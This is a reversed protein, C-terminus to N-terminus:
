IKKLNSGRIEKPLVYRFCLNGLDLNSATWEGLVVLVSSLKSDVIKNSSVELRVDIIYKNLTGEHYKRNINQYFELTPM